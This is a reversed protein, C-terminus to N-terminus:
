LRERDIEFHVNSSGEAKGAAVVGRVKKIEAGLESIESRLNEKCSVGDESEDDSEQMHRECVWAGFRSRLKVAHRLTALQLKLAEHEFDPPRKTHKVQERMEELKGQLAAKEGQWRDREMQVLAVISEVSTRGKKAAATTALKDGFDLADLHWTTSSCSPTSLISQIEDGVIDDETTSIHRIGVENDEKPNTGMFDDSFRTLRKPKIIDSSCESPSSDDVNDEGDELMISKVVQDMSDKGDAAATFRRRPNARVTLWPTGASLSSKIDPRIQGGLLRFAEAPLSNSRHSGSNNIQMKDQVEEIEQDLKAEFNQVEDSMIGRVLEQLHLSRVSELNPRRASTRREYVGRFMLGVSGACCWEARPVWGQVCKEGSVASARDPM